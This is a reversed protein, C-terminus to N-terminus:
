FSHSYGISASVGKKYTERMRGDQTREIPTDLLNRIRLSLKSQSGLNKEANLGLDIRGKEFLPSQTGRTVTDLRDDFWNAVLTFTGDLKYNDWELRLNVLYPAQGQLQRQSQQELRAGEADLTIESEIWAVNASMRVVSDIGDYLTMGGDLELGYVEARDGNSFTRVIVNSSDQLTVEMPDKFNKYFAALSISSSRSFYYEGRLDFNDIQSDKCTTCGRFTRGEVDLFVTDALETADPRSVSRSYGARLQWDQTPRWTLGVAPLTESSDRDSVESVNPDNAFPYDLDLEYQELRVGAVLSWTDGFDVESSLFAAQITSKAAYSDNPQTISRLSFAGAEFNERTLQTEVPQSRDVGSGSGGYSLRILNSDRDRTSYLLGSRLNIFLSDGVVLPWLYDAAINIADETLEAYSREFLTPSFVGGFFQYFRRDPSDRRTQSYGAMANIEHNNFLSYNTEFQQGIFQREVWELTTDVVEVDANSTDIGSEISARDESDRLLVTKSLLSWGRDDEWGAVLYGNLGVSFEDWSTKGNADGTLNEFRGSQRSSHSQGYSLAAYYGFDGTKREYRRGIKGSVSINPSTSEPQPTYVAPLSNAAALLQDNTMCGPGASSTCRRLFSGDEKLIAQVAGPLERTGDDMGIIDSDGGDYSLLRKGTVGNVYGLSISLGTENKDPLGRTTMMVAGGTTDGPLNATVSKQIEISGLIESPFLDLQVDRRFPDTSPMLGGNLTSAIYRGALGRVNAYKGGTVAVGVIRKLAAAVDSDGSRLLDDISISDTIAISFRELEAADEGPKFSGMVMVEEVDSFDMDAGATSGESLPRLMMINAAIGINAVVRMDDKSVTNFDPHSIELSHVGRPLELSYSGDPKSRVEVGAQPARILADAIPRDNIDAVLGVIRGSPGGPASSDFTAITIEPASQFDSFTLSIEASEGAEVIFDYVALEAANRLARLTHAGATLDTSVQGQAGTRGIRREDLEMDLGQFPRSELFTHVLLEQASAAQGLALGAVLMLFRFNLRMGQAKVCFRM